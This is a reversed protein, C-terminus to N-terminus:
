QSVVEMIRLECKTAMPRVRAVLILSFGFRIHVM